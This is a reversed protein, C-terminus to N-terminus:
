PTTNYEMLLCFIMQLDGIKLKSELWLFFFFDKNNNVDCYANQDNVESM